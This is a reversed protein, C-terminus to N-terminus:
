FENERRCECVCFSFKFSLTTTPSVSSANKFACLQKNRGFHQNKKEKKKGAEPLQILIPSKLLPSIWESTM